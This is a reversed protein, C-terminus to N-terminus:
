KKKEGRVEIGGEIREGEIRNVKTVKAQLEPDTNEHFSYYVIRWKADVLYLMEVDFFFAVEWEFEFYESEIMQESREKKRLFVLIKEKLFQVEAKWTHRLGKFRIPIHTLLQTSNLQTSNLQTSNLQTSNLQTSLDLQLQLTFYACIKSL